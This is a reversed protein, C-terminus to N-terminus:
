FARTPWATSVGGRQSGHAFRPFAWAQAGVTNAAEAEVRAVKIAQRFRRLHYGSMTSNSYSKAQQGMMKGLLGDMISVSYVRLAWDPAVPVGERTIPHTVTKVVRAFWKAPPDNQPGHLLKLTGFEPMFSPVPIGKDDWVGVLRIIQGDTAPSLLYSNSNAKAQFEIDERWANSDTFFEKMVDYLEAKIGAQSAGTLKVEALTMFQEFEKTDLAM